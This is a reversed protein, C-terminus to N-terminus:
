KKIPYALRSRGRVLANIEYCEQKNLYAEFKALERDRFMMYYIEPLHMLFLPLLMRAVVSPIRGVCREEDSLTPKLIIM